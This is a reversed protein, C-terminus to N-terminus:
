FKGFKFAVYSSWGNLNNIGPDTMNFDSTYRYSAGLSMRMFRTVNFELEAAPEVVLFMNSYTYGDIWHENSINYEKWYYGVGGVGMVVPFSLHVPFRPLVIPEILFGGYGGNYYHHRQGNMPNESEFNSAFGKAAVGLALHQGFITALRGGATIADKNAIPSYGFSFSAYGGLKKSKGCLTRIENSRQRKETEQAQATTM